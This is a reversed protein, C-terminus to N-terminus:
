IHILSLLFGGRLVRATFEDGEIREVITEIRGDDMLVRHGVELGRSDSEDTADIGLDSLRYSVVSDIELDISEPAFRLKPGQIDVMIGADPASQRVLSIAQPLELASLHSCNLRFVSVGAAVLSQIGTVSLSAPGLTAVIKTLRM